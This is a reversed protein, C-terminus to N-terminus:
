HREPADFGIEGQLKTLVAHVRLSLSDTAPLIRELDRPPLTPDAMPRYVLEVVLLTNGPRAPDAWARLKVVDTGLAGAAAPRWTRRDFWKTELWADFTDLRTVPFSDEVLADRLRTIAVSREVTVELTPAEPFPVLDPRTTGPDCSALTLIAALFPLSFLSSLVRRGTRTADRHANVRDSGRSLIRGSRSHANERREERM